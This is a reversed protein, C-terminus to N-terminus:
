LVAMELKRKRQEWDPMLQELLKYFAASHDHFMLHCLEHTIVYEICEKPVSILSLNLTLTGKKSLSGWRRKMRRIQLEPCNHGLRKFREMVPGFIVPMKEWAKTRYWSELGVKVRDPTAQGKITVTLRGRMFKVSDKDGEVVKLRYQRGLYLHTEGSVYHRPPTRPEFQRFHLIQKCIWRVRKKVRNEIEEWTTGAPAKVVVQRDPHVAIEMTKRKVYLVDFRIHEMGYAIAGSQVNM